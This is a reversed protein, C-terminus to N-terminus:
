KRDAEELDLELDLNDLDLAEEPEGEPASKGDGEDSLLLSLDEDEDKKEPKRADGPEELQLGEIELPKEELISAPITKGIELEGTENVKLDDLNLTIEEKEDAGLEQVAKASITDLDLPVEGSANLEAEASSDGPEEVTMDGLDIGLEDEQQKVSDLMAKEDPEAVDGSLDGLDLALDDGAAEKGKELPPLAEGDSLALEGIEKGVELDSPGELELDLAPEEASAALAAGAEEGGTELDLGLDMERSDDMHLEGTDVAPSDAMSIESEEQMAGMETSASMHMGSEGAEGLLAGLLAPPEPRFSPINLRQQEASIDKTCKPCVQHYDFSIYGCKPCKM